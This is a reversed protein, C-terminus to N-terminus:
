LYRYLYPKGHLNAVICNAFHRFSWAGCFNWHFPNPQFIKVSLLSDTMEVLREEFRIWVEAEQYDDKEPYDNGGWIHEKSYTLMTDQRMMELSQWTPVSYSKWPGFGHTQVKWWDKGYPCLAIRELDFRTRRDNLVDSRNWWDPGISLLDHEGSEIAEGHSARVIFKRAEKWLMTNRIEVTWSGMYDDIGLSTWDSWHKERTVLWEDVFSQKLKLNPDVDM